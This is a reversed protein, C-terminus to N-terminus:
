LSFNTVKYSYDILSKKIFISFWYAFGYSAYLEDHPQINKIAVAYVRGEHEVFECNPEYITPIIKQTFFKETEEYTLKRLCIVDNIYRADSTTGNICTGDSKIYVNSHDILTDSPAIKDGKYEIICEDLAFSRAAFLGNKDIKSESVYTNM